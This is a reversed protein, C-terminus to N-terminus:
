HTEEDRRDHKCGYATCNACNGSCGCSDSGGCCGGRHRVIHVVAAVLWVLVLGLLLYSAFNM